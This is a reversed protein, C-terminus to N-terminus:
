KVIFKKKSKNYTFKISAHNTNIVEWDNKDFEVVNTPIYDCVTLEVIIDTGFRPLIFHFDFLEQYINEITANPFYEEQIEPLYKKVIETITSDIFFDSFKLTPMVRNQNCVILSDKSKIYFNTFYNACQMDAYFGTAIILISKDKNNFKTAQLLKIEGDSIEYYGNKIDILTDKPMRDAQNYENFNFGDLALCQDITLNKQGFSIKAVVLTFLIIFAYKM